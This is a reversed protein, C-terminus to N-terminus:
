RLTPGTVVGPLGQMFTDPNARFTRSFVGGPQRPFFTIAYEEVYFQTPVEASRCIVELAHRLTLGALPQRVQILGDSLSIARPTPVANTTTSLVPASDVLDYILFNLGKREPDFKKADEALRKVVEALPVGDFHVTPLIIESLKRKIRQAGQVPYTVLPREANTPSDNTGASLECDPFTFLAALLLSAAVRTCLFRM